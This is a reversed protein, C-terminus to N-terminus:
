GRLLRDIKEDFTLDEEQWIDDKFFYEFENIGFSIGGPKGTSKLIRAGCAGWGVENEKIPGLFEMKKVKFIIKNVIGKHIKNKKKYQIIDGVKLPCKEEAIQQRLDDIKNKASYYIEIQTDIEKIKDKM